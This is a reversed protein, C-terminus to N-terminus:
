EAKDKANQLASIIRQAPSQLLGIIEGVMEEKSKLNALTEFQQLGVYYDEGISAGKFVPKTINSSKYFEKLLKAPANAVDSFMVGSTGKLAPVLPTYDVNNKELAKEILTNKVVKYEIGKAYCLKRLKNVQEVTMGSSDAIYFNAANAFKEAIEAIIQAKEEKRM